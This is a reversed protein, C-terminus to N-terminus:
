TFDTASGCQLMRRGMYPNEMQPKTQVWKEYGQAMPCRFAHRGQQLSPVAGLLAVIHRSVEGYAKRVDDANGKDMAALVKAAKAIARLVSQGQTDALAAAEEAARQMSNTDTVIAAIEDKALLARVNEYSALVQEAKQLAPASLTFRATAPQAQAGEQQCGATVCALTLVCWGISNTAFNM